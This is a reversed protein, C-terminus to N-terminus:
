LDHMGTTYRLLTGYDGAKLEKAARKVIRERRAKAEGKGLSADSASAGDRTVVVEVDKPVTAQVVRNVFIGPLHIHNPDLTQM